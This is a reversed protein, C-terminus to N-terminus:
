TKWKTLAYLKVRKQACHASVIHLIHLLLAYGRLAAMCVHIRYTTCGYGGVALVDHNDVTYPLIGLPSGVLLVAAYSTLM